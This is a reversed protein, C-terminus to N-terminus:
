QCFPSLLIIRIITNNNFISLLFTSLLRVPSAQSHFHNFYERNNSSSYMQATIRSVSSLGASSVKCRGSDSYNQPNPSTSANAHPQPSSGGILENESSHVNQQSTDSIIPRNNTEITNLCRNNDSDSNSKAVDSINSTVNPSSNVSNLAPSPTQVLTLDGSSRIIAVPRAMPPLMPPLMTSHYHTSPSSALKASRLQQHIQFHSAPGHQFTHNGVSGTITNHNSDQCVYTVFESIDHPETVRNQEEALSTIQSRQNNQQPYYIGSAPSSHMSSSNHQQIGLYIVIKYIILEFIEILYKGQPISRNHLSSFRHLSIVSETSKPEEGLSGSDAARQLMSCSNPPNDSSANIVTPSHTRDIENHDNSNGSTGHTRILTNQPM